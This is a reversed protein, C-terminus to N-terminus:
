RALVAEVVGTAIALAHDRGPCVRPPGGFTLPDPGGRGPRFVDPDAFASPDRNAAALDLVVIAGASVAVGAIRLPVTALRRTQRVPPDYRLTEALLDPVPWRGSPHRRAAAVANGILGATADYAQVLLGIRAARTEPDGPGALDLLRAVAADADPAASGFYAQAVAPVAALALRGDLGLATALVEVPVRRAAGEVDPFEDARARAAARLTPVDLGALDVVAVARRRRHDEGASFRAVTARLWAASGLPGAPAAPPPAFQPDALIAAVDGYRTLVRESM